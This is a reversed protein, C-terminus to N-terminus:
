SLAALVDRYAGEHAPKVLYRNAFAQARARDEPSTVPLRPISEGPRVVWGLGHRAVTESYDGLRDSILVKLGAALYEAFKVPSAVRNTESQERLLVGVDCEALERPVEVTPVFRSEVRGPFREVLRAVNPDPRCLFLLSVEKQTELLTELSHGVSGLSQWGAVSGSFVIRPNSRAQVGSRPRDPGHMRSLTCPVVVHANDCYGYTERWHDVLAESVALRIDSERVARREVRRFAAIMRRDGAWLYEAAEAAYAGRADFCVRNVCGVRRLSLALDTALAGRAIIGSARYLLSAAALSPLNWRWRRVSPVHPVVLADRCHRVIQERSEAFKRGSVFAVLGVPVPSLTRVYEVVETVQSWYVGGPGDGFTLYVIM